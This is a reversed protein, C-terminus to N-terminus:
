VRPTALGGAMYEGTSVYSSPVGTAHPPPLGSFGQTGLPSIHSLSQLTTLCSGPLAAQLPRLVPQNPPLCGPRTFASGWPCCNVMPDWSKRSSSQIREPAPVPIHGLVPDEWPTPASHEPSAKGGQPNRCLRGCGPDPAPSSSTCLPDGGEVGPQCWGGVPPSSFPIPPCAPPVLEGPPLLAVRPNLTSSPPRGPRLLGESHLVPGLQRRSRADSVGRTRSHIHTGRHGPTLSCLRRRPPSLARAGRDGTASRGTCADRLAPCRRGGSHWGMQARSLSALGPCGAPCAEGRGWGPDGPGVAGSVVSVHRGPGPRRRLRARPDCSQAGRSPSPPRPGPGPHAGPRPRAPAPM